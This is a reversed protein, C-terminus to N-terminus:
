KTQLWINRFRVPNGHDQLAFPAKAIQDNWLSSVTPKAVEINEHILVGNHIVKEFCARRTVNGNGDIQPARFTIDYTQWQLPPLELYPVRPTANGYIGGCNGEGPNDGFSDLVQVEYRGMLYVGSNGRGQGFEYPMLPTAFEVHLLCSGFQQKTKCYGKGVELSGDAMLDWTDNDWEVASTVKGDQYPLLVVAGQPPKQGRTAVEREQYAMEITANDKRVVLKGDQIEGRWGDEEIIVRGEHFRGSFSKDLGDGVIRIKFTLREKDQHKEPVVMATADKGDCKGKFEGWYPQQSLRKGCDENIRDAARTAADRLEPYQQYACAVVYGFECRIDDAALAALLMNRDEVRRASSLLSALGAVTVDRERGTEKVKLLQYAHRLALAHRKLDDERRVLELLAPIAKFVGGRSLGEAAALREDGDGDKVINLAAETTEPADAQGLVRILSLKKDKAAVNGMADLIVRSRMSMDEMRGVVAALAREIYRSMGADGTALLLKVLGPVDSDAAAMALARAAAKSVNADNGTFAAMLVEGAGRSYREGIADMLAIRTKPDANPVREILRRDVDDGQMLLLANEAARKEAGSSNAASTALLDVCDSNGIKGLAESVAIRVHADDSKALTKVALLARKDARDALAYIVQEQVHPVCVPLTGALVATTDNGQPLDRLLAVGVENTGGDKSTLLAVIRATLSDASAQDPEMGLMGKFAAIRVHAAVGPTCLHQYITQAGKADKAVLMGDACGLLAQMVQEKRWGSKKPLASALATASESGGIKGLADVAASAVEGDEDLLLKSLPPVARAVRRAALSNIIGARTKGRTKGLAALLANEAAAEKNAELAYRAMFSTPEDLLMKALVPVCDGRGLLRLYRCALQKADLSPNSELFAILAKEVIAEQGHNGSASTVWEALEQIEGKVQGFQYDRIRPLLDKIKASVENDSHTAKDQPSQRHDITPRRETVRKVPKAAVANGPNKELTIGAIDPNRDEGESGRDFKIELKDDGAKFVYTYVRPNKEEFNEVAPRGEISMNFRRDVKSSSAAMIQLKYEVDKQVDMVVTRPVSDGRVYRFLTELNDNGLGHQPHPGGPQNLNPYYGPIHRSVQTGPASNNRTVDKEDDAGFRCNGVTVEPGGVNVAYVMEGELDLDALGKVDKLEGFHVKEAFGNGVLASVIIVLLRKM